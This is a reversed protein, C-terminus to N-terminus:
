FIYSSKACSSIFLPHEPKAGKPVVPSAKDTPLLSLISAISPSILDPMSGWFSIGPVPKHLRGSVISIVLCAM